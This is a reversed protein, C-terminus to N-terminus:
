SRLNFAGLSKSEANGFMTAEADKAAFTVVAMSQEYAKVDWVAWTLLPPQLAVAPENIVPGFLLKDNSGGSHVTLCFFVM